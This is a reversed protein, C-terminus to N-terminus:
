LKSADKCAAAAEAQQKVAREAVDCFYDDNVEGKGTESKRRFVVAHIVRAILQTGIPSPHFDDDMFMSLWLEKNESWVLQFALGVPAIISPKPLAEDLAARYVLYGETLSQTMTPVDGLDDSGKTHARYAWTSILVPTCGSEQFLPIYDSKLIDLTRSRTEPRAPGQSFDNIVVYDYKNPPAFLENVTPYPTNTSLSDSSGQSALSTLSGGGKLCHSTSEISPNIDALCQPLDNFYIFSNGLYAFSLM